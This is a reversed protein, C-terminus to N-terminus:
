RLKDAPKGADRGRAGPFLAQLVEGRLQEVQKEARQVPERDFFSIRRALDDLRRADERLEFDLEKFGRADNAANRGSSRLTQWAQTIRGLYSNVLEAGESSNGKEYAEIAGRLKLHALRAAEKCRKRPDHEKEMREQLQAETQSPPPVAMAEPLFAQAGSLLLLLVAVPVRRMM